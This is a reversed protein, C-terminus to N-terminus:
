QDDSVMIAERIGRLSNCVLIRDATELDDTYLTREVLRDAGLLSERCIGALLGASVPPTFWQGEIELIVNCITTETLEGRENFLLVDDCENGGAKRAREYVERHTTKHFLFLDDSNVPENALKLRVPGTSAPVSDVEIAFEGNSDVLLRLRRDDSAEIDNIASRIRDVDCSMDFYKASRRLRNMHRDLQAVGCGVKWLMTELLQFDPLTYALIRAKSQCELWEETPDSDWVIGSGVGYSAAYGDNHEHLTLTRIGVSFRARQGPRVVGLAGTYVGRPALELERILAMTRARPAGTVSACPFLARFIAALDDNTQASVESIQQWVTPLRIVKFLADVSVSGPEAIRGLDNRIMDVIMLNEARDKASGALSQRNQEDEMPYRGRFRTGKMPECRIQKGDREFFLEPSVSCIRFDAHELYLAYPSPQARFLQVFIALPSAQVIGTMAHTFNVQYTDGARLYSKIRAIAEDFADASMTSELSIGAAPAPLDTCFTERGLVFCALPLQGPEHHTLAPDLAGAAEYCVFGVATLGDRTRRDVEALVPVVESPTWAVLIDDPNDLCM